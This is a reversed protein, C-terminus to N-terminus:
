PEEKLSRFVGIEFIIEKVIKGKYYKPPKDQRIESFERDRYRYFGGQSKMVRYSFSCGEGSGKADFNNANSGRTFPYFIREVEDKPVPISINAINFIHFNMSKVYFFMIETKPISYKIANIITHYIVQETLSHDVYVMLGRIIELFSRINIYLNNEKAIAKTQGFIRTFLISAMIKKKKPSIEKGELTLKMKDTIYVLRKGFHLTDRITTWFQVEANLLEICSNVALNDSRKKILLNRLRELRSIMAGHPELIEHIARGYENRRAAEAHNRRLLIGLVRIIREYLHRHQCFSGTKKGVTFVLLGRNTPGLMSINIPALLYISEDEAYKSTKFAAYIPELAKLRNFFITKKFGYNGRFFYPMNTHLLENLHRKIKVKVEFEFDDKSMLLAKPGEPKFKTFDSDIKATLRFPHYESTFYVIKTIGLYNVVRSLTEEVFKWQVEPEFRTEYRRELRSVVEGMFFEDNDRRKRDYISKGIDSVNNAFAIFNKMYDVVENLEYIKEKTKGIGVKFKLKSDNAVDETEGFVLSELRKREYSLQLNDNSDDDKIANNNELKFCCASLIAVLDSGIRIPYCYFILDNPGFVIKLNKYDRSKKVEKLESHTDKEKSLMRYEETWEKELNILQSQVFSKYHIELKILSGESIYKKVHRKHPKLTLEWSQTKLVKEFIFIMISKNYAFQNMLMTLLDNDIINSLSLPRYRHFEQQWFVVFWHKSTKHFFRHKQFLSWEEDYFKRSDENGDENGSFAYFEYQCKLKGIQYGSDCRFSFLRTRNNQSFDDRLSSKCLNKFDISKGCGPCIIVNETHALRM